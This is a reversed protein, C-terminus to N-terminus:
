YSAESSSGASVGVVLQRDRTWGGAAAKPLSRGRGNTMVGQAFGRLRAAEGLELRARREDRRLELVDRWTDLSVQRKERRAQTLRRELLSRKADVGGNYGLGWGAFQKLSWADRSIQYDLEDQFRDHLLFRADIEAAPDLESLEEELINLCSSVFDASRKALTEDMRGQVAEAVLRRFSDSLRAPREGTMVAARMESLRYPEIPMLSIRGDLALRALATLLIQSLMVEHGAVQARFQASAIDIALLAKFLEPVSDLQELIAYGLHLDRMSRFDRMTVAGGRDLGAFFQPVRRLFGALAERYPSDLYPIERPKAPDLGFRAMTAEARKRLDITLSLGLRFLLKLPTDRLNEIAAGLEGGALHELGLNMLNHTSEVAIRVADLDGFDVQRAVLVENAVMAMESRLQRKGQAAFGATLAANLLSNDADLMAPAAELPLERDSLMDDRIPAVCGARIERFQQPNLYAFVGQANFFDPFGRDALRALRYTYAQEELEAEIGWYIEEMLGAYYKYDREFAEELFDQVLALTADHRIFEILYHEDFQVFRDSPFDTNYQPEDVRHVKLYQRLLLAVLEMDCEMLADTLRKRGAEAMAELWDRMRDLNPRDRDWCDLDFLGKVQEPIAMSLLDGADAHGIEKLTYFLTEPTFSQVLREAEPASLILDRKQRAPLGYLFELKEQFPLNLFKEEGQVM